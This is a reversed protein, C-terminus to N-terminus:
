FLERELWEDMEVGDSPYLLDFVDVCRVSVSTPWLEGGKSRELWRLHEEFEEIDGSYFWLKAKGNFKLHTFTQELWFLDKFVRGQGKLTKTHILLVDLASDLEISSFDYDCELGHAKLQHTSLNLQVQRRESVLALADRMFRIVEDQEDIDIIGIHM